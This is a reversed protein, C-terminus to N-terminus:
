ATAPAPEIPAIANIRKVLGVPLDVDAAALNQDLQDVTRAGVIVAAVQEHSLCWRLALQAMTLEQEDAFQVLEAVVAHYCDDFFLSAEVGRAKCSGAPLQGNLYKGTLVGRALPSYVINGVKAQKCAPFLEKEAARWIINYCPQSSIFPTAGAKTAAKNAATLQTGDFNSCGIYAVKGQQILLELAAMTEEIPVDPDPGHVQYLDIYDVGLRRLSKECAEIIHKKSLGAGMPGPWIRGQCKTAIVLQERPLGLLAKGLVIEAQGANYVDAVDFLNVGAAFAQNILAISQRENLSGSTSWGQGGLAIESIKLGSRGLQKYRM